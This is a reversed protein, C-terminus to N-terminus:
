LSSPGPLDQASGATELPLCLEVELGGTDRNRANVTGGHLGAVRQVISLGVGYGGSDRDRAEATRYFPRFIAELQDEAVGPGQDAIVLRAWGDDSTLALTAATDPATYHLANRLLNEVASRLLGPNGSVTIAELKLIEIRAGPLTRLDNIVTDVLEAMDLSQMQYAAEPNDLRSLTMVQDILEGLRRSELAIRDLAAPNEPKDRLLELAVDLRALPSRLEHSVDRLLREKSSVLDQLHEAMRNFEAGLEGIADRRRALRPEVRSGLDGSGMRQTANKLRAIPRGLWAAFLLATLALVSVFIALRAWGLLRWQHPELRPRMARWLYHDAETRIQMEMLRRRAPHKNARETDPLLMRLHFGRLGPRSLPHGSRDLLVAAVEHEAYIGELYDNLAPPGGAEYIAAAQQGWAPLNQTQRDLVDWLPRILVLTAAGALASAIIFWALLKFYLRNM